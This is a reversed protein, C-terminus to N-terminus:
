PLRASGGSWGEWWVVRRPEIRVLAGASPALSDILQRVSKAGSGVQGDVYGSGEGQLMAGVMDRARWVSPSDIALAVPVDPGAGALALTETPLAAYLAHEDARWRVPLVM